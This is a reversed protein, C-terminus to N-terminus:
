RLAGEAGWRLVAGAVRTSFERPLLRSLTAGIANIPGPVHVAQGAQLAALGEAAVAEASMMPARRVVEPDVGSHGHIESETNGPCLCLVKVGHPAAEAALAESFALVYAKSAAYVAFGPIGQFAALSAVHIIGGRGRARMGPYLAHSVATLGAVNVALMAEIKARDAEHFPGYYGVGANNVLLDAALDQAALAAALAEGADPAALDLPIAFTRAGRARLEAGLAELRDARRAVLAVDHGREVLARAFAEGIGSSAGTVVAVPRREAQNVPPNTAESM